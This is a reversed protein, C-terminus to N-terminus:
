CYGLEMTPWHATQALREVIEKPSAQPLHEQIACLLSTVYATAFSVGAYKENVHADAVFKESLGKWQKKPFLKKPFHFLRHCDKHATVGVVEPLDAPYTREGKPHASSVVISGGKRAASCSDRLLLAHGMNQTGMSVHIIDAQSKYALEIGAALLDSSIQFQSDTVRIIMLEAQPVQEHIYQAIRTGHGHLDKFNDNVVVHNTAKLSLGFGTFSLTPPLEDARVGSDVLAIKIGKGTYKKGAFRM